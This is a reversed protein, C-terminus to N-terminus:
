SQIHKCIIIFLHNSHSLEIGHVTDMQVKAVLNPYHVVVFLQVAQCHDVQAELDVTMPRRAIPVADNHGGVAEVVAVVVVAMGVLDAAVAVAAVVTPVFPLCQVAGVGLLRVQCLTVTM